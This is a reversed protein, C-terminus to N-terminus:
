SKRLLTSPDGFIEPDREAMDLICFCNTEKESFGRFKFYINAKSRTGQAKKEFKDFIKIVM